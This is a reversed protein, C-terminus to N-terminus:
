TPSHDASCQRTEINMCSLFQSQVGDALWKETIPTKFDGQLSNDDIPIKGGSPSAIEM